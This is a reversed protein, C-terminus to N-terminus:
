LKITTAIHADDCTIYDSDCGDANATVGARGGKFATSGSPRIEVSVPTAGDCQGSIYGEGRTVVQGRRQELLVYLEYWGPASCSVTGSLIASGTAKNISGGDLALDLAFPPPPPPPETVSIVYNGSYGAGSGCCAGIVVGYTVGAQADFEVRSQLSDADDNCTVESFAGPSGTYVGLTTDYDSGYTDIAIHADSAPTFTYWVTNGGGCLSGLVAAPDDPSETADVSNGADSYGPGSIAFANAFDDNLPQAAVLHSSMGFAALLTFIVVFGTLLKRTNM